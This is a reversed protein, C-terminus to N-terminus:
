DGGQGLVPWSSPLHACSPGPRPLPGVQDSDKRGSNFPDPAALQPYLGRALVLKLLALQERSLAQAASAAVRLQELNHRLKFKVDQPVRCPPERPSGVWPAPVSLCPGLPKQLRLPGPRGM